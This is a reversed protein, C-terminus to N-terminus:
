NKQVECNDRGLNLTEPSSLSSELKAVIKEVNDIATMNIGRGTM